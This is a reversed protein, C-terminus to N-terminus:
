LSFGITTTFQSEDFAEGDLEPVALITIVAKYDGSELRKGNKDTMDWADQWKLSEGPNITRTVLVMAFGKDDSYRYVEKGNEDIIALEFQQASSFTLDRPEAYHSMLEFDFIVKAEKITYTAKTEFRGGVVPEQPAPTERAIAACTRSILTALEGYTTPTKPDFIGNGRGRAIEQLYAVYVGHAYKSDLLDTDTYPAMQIIVLQDLDQGTKEAWIRACEYVVAERLTSDPAGSYNEDIVLRVLSQFDEIAIPADLNKDKFVSDINHKSALDDVYDQAWHSKRTAILLPAGGNQAFAPFALLLLLVFAVTLSLIGKKM